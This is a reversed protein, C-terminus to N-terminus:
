PCSKIIDEFDQQNAYQLKAHKIRRIWVSEVQNPFRTQIDHYIAPDHEGDDGILKFKMHPLASFIAEIKKTKYHKVHFSDRAQDNSLRRTIVIGAPFGYHTLFGQVFAYFQRPTASLYFIPTHPHEYLFQQYVKAAGIVAERQLPNKLFTNTLLRIRKTVESVLITDDLDTIVGINVRSDLVLCQGTNHALKSQVRVTQWGAICENAPITVKFYGENDTTGAHEFDGFILSFPVCKRERNILHSLSRVLNKRWGDEFSFHRIKRRKIIRGEITGGQMTICAPYLIIEDIQPAPSSTLM